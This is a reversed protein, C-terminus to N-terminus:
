DSEDVSKKSEIEYQHTLGDGHNIGGNSPFGYASWVKIYYVVGLLILYSSLICKAEFKIM